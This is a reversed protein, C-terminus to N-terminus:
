SAVILQLEPLSSMHQHGSSKNEKQKLSVTQRGRSLKAQSILSSVSIYNSSKSVLLMEANRWRRQRKTRIEMDSLHSRRRRYPESRGTVCGPIKKKPSSTDM